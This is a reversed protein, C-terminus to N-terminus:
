SESGTNFLEGSATTIRPTRQHIAYYKIQEELLNLFQFVSEKNEVWRDTPDKSSLHARCLMLMPIGYHKRLYMAGLVGAPDSDYISIIPKCYKFLHRIFDPNYRSNESHASVANYGFSRFFGVEKMSKVLLMPLGPREKIRCQDYGQIDILNDCNNLWKFKKNVEFPKYAKIHKSYPFTFYYLPNDPKHYAWLKKDGNPRQFWIEEGGKIQLLRMISPSINWQEWIEYDDDTLPRNVAWIKTRQEESKSMFGQHYPKNIIMMKDKERPSWTEINFADQIKTLADKFDISYMKEVFKFADGCEGTALNKWLWKGNLQFFGFSPHVDKVGPFPNNMIKAPFESCFRSFIQEETVRALIEDKNIYLRINDFNPKIM